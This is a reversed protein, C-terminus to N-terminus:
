AVAVLALKYLRQREQLGITGGNIRKTIKVFDTEGLLKKDVVYLWAASDMAFYDEKRITDAGLGAPAQENVHAAYEVFKEKGTLQIFGAGRYRWGDGSAQDGNGMRNAYVENALKEPNRTYENANLKGKEGTLTFRSPWIDVIRQATTYNMSESKISFCGSEHAMQALFAAKDNKDTIAYRQCVDAFLSDIVTARDPKM